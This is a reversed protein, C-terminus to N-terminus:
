MGSTFKSRNKVYRIIFFAECSVNRRTHTHKVEELERIRANFAEKLADTERQARQRLGEGSDRNALSELAKRYVCM